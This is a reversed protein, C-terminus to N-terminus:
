PRGSLRPANAKPPRESSLQLRLSYRTHGPPYDELEAYVRYGLREYFGRAQFSHTHLHAHRCGRRVAEAEARRMLERGVGSGRVAGDIWLQGVYLWRWHTYGLLGGRLTGRQDRAFVALRSWNEPEAQQDNYGVLRDVVRRVDHDAPERELQVDIHDV